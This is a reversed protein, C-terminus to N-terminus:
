SYILDAMVIEEARQRITNMRQVWEMQTTATLKETM